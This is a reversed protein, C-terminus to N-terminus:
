AGGIEMVILEYPLVRFVAQREEADQWSTVNRYVVEVKHAGDFIPLLAQIMVPFETQSYGAMPDQTSAQGGWVSEQIVGGDLRFAFQVAVPSNGDSSIQASFICHLFGARMDASKSVEVGEVSLPAWALTFPLPNGRAGEYAGTTTNYLTCTIHDADPALSDVTDDRVSAVRMTQSLPVNEWTFTEDQFNDGAPSSLVEEVRRFCRNLSEANAEQGPRLLSPFYKV